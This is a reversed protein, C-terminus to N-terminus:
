ERDQCSLARDWPEAKVRCPQLTGTRASFLCLEASPARLALDGSEAWSDGRFPALHGAWRARLSRLGGLSPLGAGASQSGPLCGVGPPRLPPFPSLKEAAELGLGLSTAPRPPPEPAWRVCGGARPGLGILQLTEPLLGPDM